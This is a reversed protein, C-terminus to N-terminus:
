GNELFKETLIAELFQTEEKAIPTESFSYKSNIM